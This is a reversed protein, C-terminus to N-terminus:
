RGALELPRTEARVSSTRRISVIGSLRIPGMGPNRSGAMDRTGRNGIHAQSPDERRVADCVWQIKNEIGWQGRTWGPDRGRRGVAADPPAGTFM